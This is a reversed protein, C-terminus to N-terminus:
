VHWIGLALATYEAKYILKLNAKLLSEYSRKWHSLAQVQVKWQTNVVEMFSLFCYIIFRIIGVIVNITATGLPCGLNSGLVSNLHLSLVTHTKSWQSYLDPTLLRKLWLGHATGLARGCVVLDGGWLIGLSGMSIRAALRWICSCLSPFFEAALTFVLALCYWASICLANAACCLQM